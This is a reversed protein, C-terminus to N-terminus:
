LFYNKSHKSPRTSKLTLSSHISPNSLCLPGMIKVAVFAISILSLASSHIPNPSRTPYPMLRACIKFNHNFRKAIANLVKISQDIIEPGIGDGKIVAINYNM